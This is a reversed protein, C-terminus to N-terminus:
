PVGPAQQAPRPYPMSKLGLALGGERSDAHGYAVGDVVILNNASGIPDRRPRLVHGREALAHLVQGDLPRARELRVEDPLFSQHVRPAEVARDVTFGHDILQRAVQVVTSPITEGGPSGLVAVIRGESALLTPAMSSAMRRGPRPQNAPAASFAALSDNMVFGTGAAVYRAGFATSLTTTLSVAAGDVDIVSVHTTHELEREDDAYPLRIRESPTTQELEIAPGQAFLAAATLRQELAEVSMAAPDESDVPDFRRQAQARKSVEIFLHLEDASGAPLRKAGLQELGALM